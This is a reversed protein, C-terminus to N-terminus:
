PCACRRSASRMRSRAGVGRELGRERDQALLARGEDLDLLEVVARDALVFIDDQEGLELGVHRFIQLAARRRDARAAEGVQDGEVFRMRLLFHRQEALLLELFRFLRLPEGIGGVLLRPLCAERSRSWIADVAQELLVIDDRQDARGHRRCPLDVRDVAVLNAAAARARERRDGAIRVEGHRHPQHLSHRDPNLKM